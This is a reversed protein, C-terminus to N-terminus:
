SFDTIEEQTVVISGKSFRGLLLALASPSDVFGLIHQDPRILVSRNRRATFAQNLWEEDKVQFDRGLSPPVVWPVLSPPLASQVDTEQYILESPPPSM